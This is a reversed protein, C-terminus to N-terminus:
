WNSGQRLGTIHATHHRGHWSYLGLAKDLSMRGSEPHVFARDWEPAALGRLMAVWRTHLAEILDLSVEPPLGGDPLRVWSDEDYPKIV